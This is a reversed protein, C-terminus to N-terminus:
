FQQRSDYNSTAVSFNFTIANKLIFFGRQAKFHTCEFNWSINNVDPCHKNIRIHLPGGTQGTYNM